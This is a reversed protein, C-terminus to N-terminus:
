GKKISKQIELLNQHSFQKFNLHDTPLKPKFNGSSMKNDKLFSHSMMIEFPYM